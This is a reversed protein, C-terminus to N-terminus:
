ASKPPSWIVWDGDQPPADPSKDWPVTFGASNEPVARGGDDDGDLGVSYVIPQKDVIKYHLPEGTILDIPVQPLYQPALEDLSNPWKSHKRHYAELALGIFVGNLESNSGTTRVLIKEYAPTLMRVFLYKFRGIPGNEKPQFESLSPKNRQMWYPEALRSLAHNTINDFTEIMDKRSAVVMNAAPLTLMALGSNALLSDGPAGTGQNISELLQFLNKDPAVNLALRGDGSGDDTYIRQMSDYFLKRESDFGRTWDVRLAVLEHALDRLQADTWLNPKEGMIDRITARAVGQVADAVAMGILIPTDQAHRSVGFIATIDAYATDGDNARAARRADGALLRAADRLFQLDPLLTSILWRDELTRNKEAKIDEPTLHMDFLERDKDTFDSRLTSSVFGLHPRSAAQRLEDISDAHDTLFKENDQWKADGPKVEHLFTIPAGLSKYDKKMELFAERYLPWARDNEPVAAAIKNIEKLYDVRVTPRGTAM